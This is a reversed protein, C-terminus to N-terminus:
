GVKGPLNTTATLIGVSSGLPVVGAEGGVPHSTGKGVDVRTVRAPWSVLSLQHGLLKRGSVLSLLAREAKAKPSVHKAVTNSPLQEKDDFLVRTLM